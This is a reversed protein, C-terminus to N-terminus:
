LRCSFGMPQLRQPLVLQVLEPPQAADRLRRRREREGGGEGAPRKDGGESYPPKKEGDSSSKKADTADLDFRMTASLVEPAHEPCIFLAAGISDTCEKAARQARECVEQAPLGQVILGVVDLFSYMRQKQSTALRHSVNMEEIALVNEISV